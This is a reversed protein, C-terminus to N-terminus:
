AVESAPRFQRHRARRTGCRRLQEVEDFLGDIMTGVAGIDGGVRAAIRGTNPDVVVLAEGTLFTAELDARDVHDLEM